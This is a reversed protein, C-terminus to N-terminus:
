PNDTKQTKSRAEQSRAYKEIKVQVIERVKNLTLTSRAVFELLEAISRLEAIANDTIADLVFDQFTKDFNVVPDAKTM